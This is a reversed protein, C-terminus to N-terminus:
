CKESFNYGKILLIINLTLILFVIKKLMKFKIKIAKICIKEQLIFQYYLTIYISITHIYYRDIKYVFLNSQKICELVFYVPLIRRLLEHGTTRIRIKKKRRHV